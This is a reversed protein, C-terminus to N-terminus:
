PRKSLSELTIPTDSEDLLPVGYDILLRNIEPQSEAILKNLTRKWDQDAPRVAMSIRFALRPGTTEKTLPVVIMPPDAKKAYYGAMPGWLVAVDITGDTLDEMMAQASSDIRTDIVLPYPKARLMLGNVAMNSAPPTGAVIGIRKEKLREDGLTAIGDLGASPKFVLAYATRYYPNTGQALDDGQPYGMIVDCRHSGLTMRVFGTAQPYFTYAISKGLKKAFMEALKNEFGEGKENSFPLNRPDACVRFIKPDVLEISTGPDEAQSFGKAPALAFLALAVIGALHRWGLGINGPRDDRFGSPSEPIRRCAGSFGCTGSGPEARRKATSQGPHCELVEERARLRPGLPRVSPEISGPHWRRPLARLEVPKFFPISPVGFM